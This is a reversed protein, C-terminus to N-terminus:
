KEIFIKNCVYMNDIINVIKEAIIVISINYRIIFSTPMEKLVIM